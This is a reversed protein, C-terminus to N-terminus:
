DTGDHHWTICGCLGTKSNGASVKHKLFYNVYLNRGDIMKKGSTTKASNHSTCKSTLIYGSKGQEIRRGHYTLRICSRVISVQPRNNTPSACLHCHVLWLLPSLLAVESLEVEEAAVM